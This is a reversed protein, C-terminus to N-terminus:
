VRLHAPLQIRDRLFLVLAVVVHDKPFTSRALRLCTSERTTQPNSGYFLLTLFVIVIMM